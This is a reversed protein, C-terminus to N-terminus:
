SKITRIVDFIMGDKLVVSNGITLSKDKHEDVEIPYPISSIIVLTFM